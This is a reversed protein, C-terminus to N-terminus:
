VAARRLTRGAASFSGEDTAAIFTLLHDVSVTNLM